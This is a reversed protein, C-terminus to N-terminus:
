VAAIGLHIFSWSVGFKTTGITQFREEGYDRRTDERYVRKEDIFVHIADAFDINHNQKNLMNKTEDWEFEM